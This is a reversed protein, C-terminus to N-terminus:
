SPLSSPIQCPNTFAIMAQLVWACITESCFRARSLLRKTTGIWCSSVSSCRTCSGVEGSMLLCVCAVPAPASYLCFTFCSTVSEFSFSRVWRQFQDKDETDILRDQFVRQNEHCWVRLFTRVDPCNNVKLSLIGQFVKSLDRLNFTYHSKAPTPLMESSIKEYIDISSDVTTKVLAKIEAPFVTLHGDLVSSFIVGLVSRSPADVTLMSFHRYYRATVFNRGGGPPGCASVVVMDQILFYDFKKRDYLGGIKRYHELTDIVQRLLEIPPQAGYEERAPMNCDDIFCVLKKNVPAGMVGKRKKEFRLELMEQTRPSSSQASFNITFPVLSGPVERTLFKGPEALNNLCDIMIVSKGTGSEGVLLTGRNVATFAETLYSFRVTDKTPVLISSYPQNKDYVFQPTIEEWARFEKSEIDVCYDYVTGANPFRIISALKERVLESFIEKSADALNGGVSWVLSFLFWRKFLEEIGEIGFDLEGSELVPLLGREPVFLSELLRCLSAALNNDESTIGGEKCDRRVILIAEALNDVILKKLLERLEEPCEKPVYMALWTMPFALFGLAEPPIWVVGLRSVTAPSAM